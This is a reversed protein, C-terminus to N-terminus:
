YIPGDTSLPAAERRPPSPRTPPTDEAGTANDTGTDRDSDDQDLGPTASEPITPAGTAAGTSDFTVGTAHGASSYGIAASSSFGPQAATGTSAFAPQGSVQAGSSFAVQPAAGTAAAAVPPASPLDGACDLVWVDYIPDDMSSLAPSSAFMWGSFLWRADQRPPTEWIQLFAASEPAALPSAKKCTRPRIYLPGFRVTTDVHVDFTSTRATIKDLMRLRAIPYSDMPPPPPTPSPPPNAAPPTAAQGQVAQVQVPTSSAAPSAAPAAPQALATGSLSLTALACALGRSSLRM